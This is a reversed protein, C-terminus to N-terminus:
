VEDSEGREELYEDTFHGRHKEQSFKRENYAKSQGKPVSLSQWEEGKIMRAIYVIQGIHYAYHALQRNIAEPISHGINRIYVLQHFNDETIQDLAQFVCAWGEEYKVMMEERNGIDSEFEGDRDRWTKEGDETLFHTWRSRMNGWLHKVIVAISNSAENYEWFFDAEELQAFAREGMQQYFQFQKHIHALYDSASLKM